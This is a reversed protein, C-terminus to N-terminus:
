EGKNFKRDFEEHLVRAIDRAPDTCLKRLSPMIEFRVLDLRDADWCTIINIDGTVMGANHWRVAYELMYYQNESLNLHGEEYLDKVFDAGRHGHAPDQRENQRCADHLYAFHQAIVPDADTLECLQQANKAVADWHKIGHDGEPDILLQPYVLM